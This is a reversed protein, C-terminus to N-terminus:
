CTRLGSMPQNRSICLCSIFHTSEFLVSGPSPTLCAWSYYLDLPQHHSLSLTTLVVVFVSHILPLWVLASAQFSCIVKSNRGFILNQLEVLARLLSAAPEAQSVNSNCSRCEAHGHLIPFRIYKQIISSCHNRKAGGM